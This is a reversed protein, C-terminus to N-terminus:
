RGSRIWARRLAQIKLLAFSVGSKGRLLANRSSMPYSGWNQRQSRNRAGDEYKPQEAEFRKQVRREISAHAGHLAFRPADYGRFHSCLTYEQYITPQEYAMSETPFSATILTSLIVAAATTKLYEQWSKRVEADKANEAKWAAEITVAPLGTGDMLKRVTKERLGGVGALMNFYGSRSMGIYKAVQEHNRFGQKERLLEIVQKLNM